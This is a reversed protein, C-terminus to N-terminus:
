IAWSAKLEELNWIFIFRYDIFDIQAPIAYDTYHSVIPQVSWPDFGSPPLIKQVQGSWSPGV